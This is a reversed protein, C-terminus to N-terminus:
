NAAVLAQVKSLQDKLSENEAALKTNNDQLQKLADVQNLVVEKGENIEGAVAQRLETVDNQTLEPFKALLKQDFADAKSLIKEEITETIRFNEEVVNWIMKAATIYKQNRLLEEELGAKILKKGLVEVLLKLIMKIM